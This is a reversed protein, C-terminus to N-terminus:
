SVPHSQWRRELWLAFFAQAAVFGFISMCAFYRADLGALIAVVGALIVPGVRTVLRMRREAPDLM